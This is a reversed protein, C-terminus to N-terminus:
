GSGMEAVQPATKILWILWSHSVKQRFGRGLSQMLSRARREFAEIATEAADKAPEEKAPEAKLKVDPAQGSWVILQREM